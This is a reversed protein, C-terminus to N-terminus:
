PIASTKNSSLTTPTTADIGVQGSSDITIRTADATADRILLKSGGIVPYSDATSVFRWHRGGTGTANIKLVAGNVNDNEIHMNGGFLHLLDVPIGVGIGVNGNGLIRMKETMVQNFEETYFELRAANDADDRRAAILCRSVVGAGGDLNIFNVEGLLSTGVADPVVLEIAGHKTTDAGKITLVKNPTALINPTDTGFGVNGGDLVNVHTAVGVETITFRNGTQGARWVVASDTDEFTIIPAASKLHLLTDPLTTGIGVLRNNDITLVDLPTGGLGLTLDEDNAGTAYWRWRIIGPNQFEMYQDGAATPNATNIELKASPDDTGIGVGTANVTWKTSNNLSFRVSDGSKFFGTNTDNFKLAPAAQTGDSTIKILNSELQTRGVNWFLNANDQTIIANDGMFLVSGKTLDNLVISDFYGEKSMVAKRVAHDDLIGASKHLTNTPLAPPNKRILPNKVM